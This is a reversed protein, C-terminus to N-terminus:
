FPGRFTSFCGRSWRICLQGDSAGLRSRCALRGRDRSARGNSGACPARMSHVLPGVHLAFWFGVHGAVFCLSIGRLIHGLGSACRMNHDACPQPRQSWRPAPAYAAFAPVQPCTCDRASHQRPPKGETFALCIRRRWIGRARFLSLLHCQRKRGAFPLRPHAISLFANRLALPARASLARSVLICRPGHREAGPVQRNSSVPSGVPSGVRM